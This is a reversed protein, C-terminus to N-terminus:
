SNHLVGKCNDIQGHYNGKKFDQTFANKKQITMCVFIDVEQGKDMARVHWMLECLQFKM